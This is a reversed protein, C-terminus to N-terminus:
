NEQYVRVYDVYMSQPFQTFDNIPGVFTGEVAVNLILFFPQNYVWEGPVDDPTFRTYLYDDVYFDIFDEGWEVAYVHFDTDFRDNRLIYKSTVAEGASYGPGHLSGHTINAEQGRQEMIDIEGCQPWSVEDINEGLMWFAPWIGAGSPTKIRAEMRGYKQAFLGETKIRGSTINGGNNIATIVLNGEGDMSVNEPNNTYSQSESNGWGNDGTGIDYTWMDINPQTGAEGDFEDSWTLTYSRDPRTQEPEIECGGILALIAFAAGTKIINNM